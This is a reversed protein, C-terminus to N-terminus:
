AAAPLQRFPRLRPPEAAREAGDDVTVSSITTNVANLTLRATPERVEIDVVEVGPLALSEIDPKLEIAYHIPVITKPLKGPTADFSFVPEASATGDVSLPLVLASALCRLVSAVAILKVCLGKATKCVSFPMM